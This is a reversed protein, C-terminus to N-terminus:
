PCPQDEGCCQGAKAGTKLCVPNRKSCPADGDMEAFDSTCALCAEDVCRPFEIACQVDNPDSASGPQWDIDCSGHEPECGPAFLVFAIALGSLGAAFHLRPSTLM